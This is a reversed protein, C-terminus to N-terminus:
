IVNFAEKLLVKPPLQEKNDSEKETANNNQKQILEIIQTDDLIEETLSSYRIRM